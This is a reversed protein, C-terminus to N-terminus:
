GISYCCQAADTRAFADLLGMCRRALYDGEPLCDAADRLRGLEVVIQPILEMPVTALAGGSFLPVLQLGLRECVPLWVDQFTETCAVPVEETEGTVLDHILMSVSM